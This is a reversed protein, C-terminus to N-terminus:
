ESRLYDGECGMDIMGFEAEAELEAEAEEAEIERIAADAEGLLEPRNMTLRDRLKSWWSRNCDFLRFVDCRRLSKWDDAVIGLAMKENFDAAM